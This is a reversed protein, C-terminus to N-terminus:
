KKEPAFVMYDPKLTFDMQSDHNPNTIDSHNNSLGSMNGLFDSEKGIRQIPRLFIISFVVM